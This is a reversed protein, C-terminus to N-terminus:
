SKAQPAFIAVAQSRGKVMHLGLDVCREQGWLLATTEGLLLPHGVTRTLQEIRAALNVADGQATWALHAEAGFIGVAMEGTNIGISVQMPAFGHALLWPQLNAVAVQMAQAAEVAHRAHEADPLPAGWIAMLGDGTYKEVTGHHQAVVESLTALCQQALLAAAEPPKGECAQTFGRMDAVLVSLWQRESGTQVEDDQLLRKVLVQPLFHSFQRTVQVIQAHVVASDLLLWMLGVGLIWLLGPSLPLWSHALWFIMGQSLIWTLAALVLWLVIRAPGTGPWWWVSVLLLGFVLLAVSPAWAASEILAHDLAASLIQAHVEVGPAIAEQPTAVRDALGVATSGLLVIRQALQEAQVRGQMVDVASVYQFGGPSVRYPIWMRGERDVPIRAEPVQPWGWAASQRWTAAHWEPASREQWLAQWMRLSLALSCQQEYCIVPYLRRVKGDDDIVPSIHGVLPATPLIAAHNAVFGQAQGVVGPAKFTDALHGVRSIQDAQGGFEFTQSLVVAPHTLARQLRQDEARPNAFIVDIGLLAVQHERTLRDVLSAMTKRPWPWPGLAQLSREDVDVIVVRAEQEVVPGWRVQRDYAIRELGEYLPNPWAWYLGMLLTSILVAWWRHPHKMRM